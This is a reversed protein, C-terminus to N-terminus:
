PNVRLTLGLLQQGFTLHDGTNNKCIGCLNMAVLYVKYEAKLM